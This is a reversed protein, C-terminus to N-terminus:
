PDWKILEWRGGKRPGRHRLRAQAQLNAAAREVARLAYALAATIDALSLEPQARVPADLQPALLRDESGRHNESSLEAGGSAGPAALHESNVPLHESSGTLHESSAAFVEEPRPPDAGVLCYMAGRGHNHGELMEDRVLGRLLRTAEAARLGTLEIVRAHTVTQESAAAALVLRGERSVADLRVGFRKRLGNLVAQPMGAQPSAPREFKRLQRPAKGVANGPLRAALMGGHGAKCLGVLVESGFGHAPLHHPHGDRGRRRNLADIGGEPFRLWDLLDVRGCALQLGLGGLASNLPELM